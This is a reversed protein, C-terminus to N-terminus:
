TLYDHNFMCRTKHVRKVYWFEICRPGSIEESKIRCKDNYKQPFSAEMYIYWGDATGYTHDVFFCSMNM